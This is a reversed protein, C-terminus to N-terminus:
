QNAQLWNVLDDAGSFGLLAEGLSELMPLSLAEIQSQLVPPIPGIKCTLLKLILRKGEDEQGEQYVRTQQVDVLELMAAIEQRSLQPFKYVMTTEILEIIVDPSVRTQAQQVRQLLQKAQEAATQESALILGLIGLEISHHSLDL